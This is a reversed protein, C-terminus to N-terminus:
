LGDKGRRRKKLSTKGGACFRSIMDREWLLKRRRKREKITNGPLGRKNAKPKVAKGSQVRWDEGGGPKPNRKTRNEGKKNIAGMEKRNIPLSSVRVGGNTFM